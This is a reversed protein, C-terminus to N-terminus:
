RLIRMADSGLPTTHISPSHRRPLLDLAFQFCLAQLNIEAASSFGPFHVHGWWAALSGLSPGMCAGMLEIEQGIQASKLM